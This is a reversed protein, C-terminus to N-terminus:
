LENELKSQAEFRDFEKQQALRVEAHYEAAASVLARAQSIQGGFTNCSLVALVRREAMAIRRLSEEDFKMM